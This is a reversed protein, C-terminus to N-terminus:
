GHHTAQWNVSPGTLYRGPEPAAAPRLCLDGAARPGGGPLCRGGHRRAAPLHEGGAGAAAPLGACWYYGDCRGVLLRANDPQPTRTCLHQTGHATQMWSLSCALAASSCVAIHQNGALACLRCFRIRVKELPHRTSVAIDFLEPLWGFQRWARMWSGHQVGAFRTDGACMLFMLCCSAGAATGHLTM